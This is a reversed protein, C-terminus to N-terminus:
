TDSVAFVALNTRQHEGDTGRKEEHNELYSSITSM